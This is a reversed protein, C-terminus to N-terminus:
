STKKSQFIAWLKKNKIRNFIQKRIENVENTNLIGSETIGKKRRTVGPESGIPDKKGTKGPTCGKGTHHTRNVNLPNLVSKM